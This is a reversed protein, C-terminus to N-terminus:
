ALKKPINSVTNEGILGGLKYINGLRQNLGM